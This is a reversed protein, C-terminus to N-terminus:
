ALHPPRGRGAPPQRPERKHRPRPTRGRACLLGLARCYAAYPLCFIEEGLVLTILGQHPMEPFQIAKVRRGNVWPWADHGEGLMIIQGDITRVPQETSM